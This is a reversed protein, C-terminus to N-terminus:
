AGYDADARAYSVRASAIAVMPSFIKGQEIQPEKVSVSGQGIQLSM